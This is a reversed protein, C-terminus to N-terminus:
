PSLYAGLGFIVYCACMLAGKLGSTRLSSSGENLILLNVLLVTGVLTVMEFVDFTLGLDRHLVWGAVVTLPTVCLSIQISSGVAVAIALDLKGRVAVTVVTAYEAINGVIPLIILGILSESLGGEHTVDDITSVLFEGCVSMLFSSLILMIVSATRDGSSGHQPSQDNIVADMDARNERLLQFTAVRRGEGSISSDRSHAGRRSSLSLSRSHRRPYSYPQYASQPIDNRSGDESSRGRHSVADDNHELLTSDVMEMEAVIGADHNMGTPNNEDAFRITRPPLTYSGAPSQHHAAFRTTLSQGVMGSGNELDPTQSMMTEENRRRWKIENIFYLVYILLVILASIRSMKLATGTGEKQSNIAYGFATPMLIVFVSVFLLCALLQAEVTNYIPEIDIFSGALLASGLILLLNVLMSGLISAQVIYIQDHALAIFLILEVLNGFSINLLAGIADGATAAIRETADTLLASLPVIAIANCVFVLLPSMGTCYTGIGAVVFVLLSNIWSALLMVRIQGVVTTGMAHKTNDDADIRDVLPQAEISSLIPRTKRRFIDRISNWLHAVRQTGGRTLGGGNVIDRKHQSSAVNSVPFNASASQDPDDDDGDSASSISSGYDLNNDHMIRSSDM